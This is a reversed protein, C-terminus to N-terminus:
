PAGQAQAPSLLPFAQQGAAPQVITPKVLILLSRGRTQQAVTVILTQGDPVIASIQAETVNTEPVEVMLNSGEPRGSWPVSTMRALASVKPHVTMRISKQDSEVSATAEIEVGANVNQKVPEYRTSGESPKV